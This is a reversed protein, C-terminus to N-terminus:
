DGHLFPAFWGPPRPEGLDARLGPPLSGAPGRQPIGNLYDRGQSTQFRRFEQAWRFHFWLSEESSQKRYIYQGCYFCRLGAGFETMGQQGCGRKVAEGSQLTVMVVPCRYLRSPSEGERKRVLRLKRM